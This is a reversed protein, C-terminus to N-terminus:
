RCHDYKLLNQVETSNGRQKAIDYPALEDNTCYDKRAGAHLLLKVTDADAERAAMYLPTIGRLTRANVDAGKSILYKVMEKNGSTAAYHLPSWNKPNNVAAGRAILKKAVDNDKLFSENSLKWGLAASPFWGWRNGRAFKSSGDRRLTATLLYRDDYSYFARGFFSAISNDSQSGTGSSKSVDGASPDKTSNSLYGTANSVQTEWHSQSMEQGLMVNISHVHVQFPSRAQIYQFFASYMTDTTM